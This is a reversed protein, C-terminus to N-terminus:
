LFKYSTWSTEVLSAGYITAEPHDTQTEPAYLPYIEADFGLWSWRFEPRVVYTSRVMKEQETTVTKLSMVHQYCAFLVSVDCSVASDFLGLNEILSPAEPKELIPTGFFWLSGVVSLFRERAKKCSFVDFFVFVFRINGFFWFPTGKRKQFTNGSFMCFM